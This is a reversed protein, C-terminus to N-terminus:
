TFNLDSINHKEMFDFLVKHQNYSNEISPLPIASYEKNIINRIVETMYHSVFSYEIKEHIITNKDNVNIKTMIRQDEFVNYCNDDAIIHATRINEEESNNIFGKFNGSGLELNGYIDFYGERKQEYIGMFNTNILSYKDLNFLWFFLDIQHIGVCALGTKPLNNFILGNSPNGIQNKISQYFPQMRLTFNVYSKIEKDKLLEIVKNYDALNQCVPKECIITEPEKEIIKKFLNLRDDLTTAVIVISKSSIKEFISDLNTISEYNYLKTNTSKLFPEVTLLASESKDYFFLEPNNLASIAQIYRKGLNGTGFLIIRNM